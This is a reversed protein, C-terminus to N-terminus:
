NHVLGLYRAAASGSEPVSGCVFVGADVLLRKTHRINELITEGTFYM